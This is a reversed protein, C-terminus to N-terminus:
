LYYFTKLFLWITLILFSLSLLSLVIASVYILMKFILNNVSNSDVWTLYNYTLLVVFLIAILVTFLSFLTQLPLNNILTNQFLKILFHDFIPINFFNTLLSFLLLLIVSSFM